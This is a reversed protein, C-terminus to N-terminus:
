EGSWLCLAGIVIAWFTLGAITALLDSEPKSRVRGLSFVFMVAYGTLSTAVEFLLEFFAELM